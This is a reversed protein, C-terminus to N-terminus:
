RRWEMVIADKELRYDLDAMRKFWGLVDELPLEVATFSFPTDMLAKASPDVEIAIGATRAVGQLADGVPLDEFSISVDRALIPKWKQELDPATKALREADDEAPRSLFRFALGRCSTGANVEARQFALVRDMEGTALVRGNLLAAARTGRVELELFGAAEDPPVELDHSGGGPLTFTGAGDAFTFTVREGGRGHVACDVVSEADFDVEIRCNPLPIPFDYRNDTGFRFRGGDERPLEGSAPERTRCEIAVLGAELLYEDLPNRWRRELNAGRAQKAEPFYFAIVPRAISPDYEHLRLLRKWFDRVARRKGAASFSKLAGAVAERVEAFPPHRLPRVLDILSADDPAPVGADPNRGGEEDFPLPWGKEEHLANAKRHYPYVSLLHAALFRRDDESGQDFVELIRRHVESRESQVFRELRKRAPRFARAMDEEFEESWEAVLAAIRDDDAALCPSTALLCCCCIRLLAM